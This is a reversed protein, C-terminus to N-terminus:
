SDLMFPNKLVANEVVKFADYGYLWPQVQPCTWKSPVPGQINSEGLHSLFIKDRAEQELGDAM